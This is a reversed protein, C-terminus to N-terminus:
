DATPSAKPNKAIEEAKKMAEHNEAVLQGNADLLKYNPIGSPALSKLFKVRAADAAEVAPFKMKHKSMFSKMGEQTEDCSVHILEVRPSSALTEDYLKVLGPAAQQCPGCWSAGWYVLYYEPRKASAIDFKKFRKGELKVTKGKLAKAVSSEDEKLAKPTEEKGATKEAIYDLDAESLKMRPFSLTKGDERKITVTDEKLSVFEGRFTKSSDEASTWVRTEAAAMLSFGTLIVASLFSTKM